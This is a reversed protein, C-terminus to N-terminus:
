QNPRAAFYLMHYDAVYLGTENWEKSFLYRALNDNYDKSIPRKGKTIKLLGGSADVFTESTDSTWPIVHYGGGSSASLLLSCVFVSSLAAYVLGRSRWLLRRSQRLMTISVARVRANHDGVPEFIPATKLDELM